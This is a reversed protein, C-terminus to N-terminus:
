LVEDEVYSIADDFNACIGDEVLGVLCGAIREQDVPHEHSMLLRAVARAADPLAIYTM